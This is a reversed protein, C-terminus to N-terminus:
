RALKYTAPAHHLSAFALSRLHPVGSVLRRAKESIRIQAKYRLKNVTKIGM